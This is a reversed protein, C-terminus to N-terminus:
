ETALANMAIALFNMNNGSGLTKEVCVMSSTEEIICQRTHPSVDNENIAWQSFKVPNKRFTAAKNTAHDAIKITDQAPLEAMLHDM